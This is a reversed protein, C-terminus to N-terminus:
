RFHIFEEADAFHKKIAKRMGSVTKQPLSFQCTGLVQKWEGNEQERWLGEAQYNTRYSEIDGNIFTITFFVMNEDQRIEVKM